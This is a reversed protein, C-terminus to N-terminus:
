MVVCAKSKQQNDTKGAKWKVVKVNESQRKQREYLYQDREGRSMEAFGDSSVDELDSEVKEDSNDGSAATQNEYNRAPLKPPANQLPASTTAIDITAYTPEVVKVAKTRFFNVGTAPDVSLKKESTENDDESHYTDSDGNMESEDSSVDSSELRSLKREYEKLNQAGTDYITLNEDEKFVIKKRPQNNPSSNFYM